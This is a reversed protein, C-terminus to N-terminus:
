SYIYDINKQLSRTKSLCVFTQCKNCLGLPLLLLYCRLIFNQFEAIYHYFPNFCKMRVNETHGFNRPSMM